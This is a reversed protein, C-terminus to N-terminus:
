ILALTKMQMSVQKGTAAGAYKVVQSGVEKFGLKAHFRESVPNPPDVDFECAITEIGSQKAYDFLDTYLAKGIGLGHASPSVVIRDIYVFQEYRTNFWIYNVSDYASRQGFAMLFGCVGQQNEYVRLYSCQESLLELRAQPMASLFQVSEHNLALITPFDKATADRIIGSSM